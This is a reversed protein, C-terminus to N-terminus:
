EENDKWRAKIVRYPYKKIMYKANPCNTKHIKIGNSVTIFGFIKQGSKASCCKSIEYSTQLNKDIIIGKEESPEEKNNIENLFPLKKKSEEATFLEKIKLPNIEEKGFADYLERTTKFELFKLLKVINKSNFDIKLQNFKRNIIEKGLESFKFEEKKLFMRIKSRTKGLKAIKLWNLKPKQSKLNVIEIKNGNELKTDISFFEGNIKGGICKEGVKTHIGYAFDLITSNVPFKKLDNNPTFVFVEDSYLEAKEEKKKDIKKLDTNEILSRIKKLWADLKNKDNNKGKYRWHAAQGKEAIEDMRETRIQVEVWKGNQGMVTTHLSEYASQRPSSIWDRLREPNPAYLDTVISYVKWCLMKEDEFNRNKIIIRIAFLDYVEEFNVKQVKMKNYISSVSKTRSKIEFSFNNKKLKEDIKEIFKKVFQIRNVKSLALKKTLFIYTKRNSYKMALEDLETKLNYLGLRHSIPSHSLITEKSIRLQEKKPLKYLNRMFFLRFALRIIISRIDDTMIFLLNIFNESSLSFNERRIKKKELKDVIDRTNIEYLKVIGHVIKKITKNYKKEIEELSIKKNKNLIYLFVSIISNKGMMFNDIIIENVSISAEFEKKELNNKAFLLVKKIEESDEMSFNNEINELVKKYYVINNM